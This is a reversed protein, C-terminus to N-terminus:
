VSAFVLAVNARKNVKHLPNFRNGFRLAIYQLNGKNKSPGVMDNFNEKVLASDNVSAMLNEDPRMNTRTRKGLDRLKRIIEIEAQKHWKTNEDVYTILFRKGASTEKYPGLTDM